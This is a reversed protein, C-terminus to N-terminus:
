WWATYSICLLTVYLTVDTKFLTVQMDTCWVKKYIKYLRTVASIFASVRPEREEVDFM